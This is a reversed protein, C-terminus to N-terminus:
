HRRAFSSQSSHASAESDIHASEGSGASASASGTLSRVNQAPRSPYQKSVGAHQEFQHPGVANGQGPPHRPIPQRMMGPPSPRGNMGPAGNPAMYGNPGPPSPRGSVRRAGPPGMADGPSLSTRRPPGPTPYAGNMGPLGGAGQLQELRERTLSGARSEDHMQKRDVNGYRNSSYGMMPNDLLNEGAGPINDAMVRQQSSRNRGMPPRFGGGMSSMRGNHPGMEPNRRLDRASAPTAKRTRRSTVSMMDFNDPDIMPVPTRPNMPDVFDDEDDDEDFGGRHSPPPRRSSRRMNLEQERLQIERQRIMLERERLALDNPSGGYGPAVDGEPIDDIFALHSFEELDNNEFSSQRQLSGPGRPPFGNSQRQPYGNVSPPGRRGPPLGGMSSARGRGMGNPPPGNTLAGNPQGHPPPRPPGVSSTRPPHTGNTSDDPSRIQAPRNQNAINLNHMITYLTAIRPVPLGAEEGLKIPSGLYTEIELPRRAVFDQYMTSNHETPKLMEEITKEKFGAPFVCERVQAITMLEEIVDNILQRVGMKEILEAHSSTEFLVSLPHFAIPRVDNSIALFFM